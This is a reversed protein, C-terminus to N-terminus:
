EEEQPNQATCALLVGVGILCFLGSLNYAGGPLSPM